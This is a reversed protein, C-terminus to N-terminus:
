QIYNKIIKLCDAVTNLLYFGVLRWEIAEAPFNKKPFWDIGLILNFYKYNEM